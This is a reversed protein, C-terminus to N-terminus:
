WAMILVWTLMCQMYRWSLRALLTRARFSRLSYSPQGGDADKREQYMSRRNCGAHSAIIHALDDHHQQRSDFVEILSYRTSALDVRGAGVRLHGCVEDGIGPDYGARGRYCLRYYTTVSRRVMCTYGGRSFFCQAFSLLYTSTVLITGGVIADNDIYGQTKILIPDKL